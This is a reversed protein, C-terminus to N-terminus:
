LRKKRKKEERENHRSILRTIGIAVIAAFAIAMLWLASSVDIGNVTSRTHHNSSTTVTTSPQTIKWQTSTGSKAHATRLNGHSALKLVAGRDAHGVGHEQAHLNRGTLGPLRKLGHASLKDTLRKSGPKIQM